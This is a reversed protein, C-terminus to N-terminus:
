FLSRAGLLRHLEDLRNTGRAALEADSTEALRALQGAGYREESMSVLRFWISRASIM